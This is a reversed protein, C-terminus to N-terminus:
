PTKLLWASLVTAHNPDRRSATLLTVSELTLLDDRIAHAAPRGGLELLYERSFDRFRDPNQHFFTRVSTSPSLDRAWLDLRLSAKSLGRPWLRDVLVRYGDGPSPAEYVRRVRFELPM